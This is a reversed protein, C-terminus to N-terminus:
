LYKLTIAQYLTPFSFIFRYQYHIYGTFNTHVPAPGSSPNPVTEQRVFGYFGTTYNTYNLKNLADQIGIEAL